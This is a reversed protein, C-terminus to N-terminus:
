PLGTVFEDEASQGDAPVQLLSRTEAVTLGAAVAVAAPEYGRAVVAQVSESLDNEAQDLAWRTSEVDAAALWVQLIAPAALAEPMRPQIMTPTADPGAPEVAEDTAVPHSLIVHTETSPEM